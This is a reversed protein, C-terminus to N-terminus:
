LDFTNCPKKDLAIYDSYESSIKLNRMVRSQKAKRTRKYANKAQM